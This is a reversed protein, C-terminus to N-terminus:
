ATVHVDDSAAHGYGARGAQDFGHREVTYLHLEIGDPDEFPLVWGVTADVVPGHRVGHRDLHEAWADIAPRDAVALSCLDSGRLGEAAKPNERLALFTGPVGRLHGGTGRVVGDEDPFEFEVTYGLVRGYWERSRPLDTVPIKISFIGLLEVDTM